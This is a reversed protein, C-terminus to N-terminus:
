NQLGDRPGVEVVKVFEGKHNQLKKAFKMTFYKCKLCTSHTKLTQCSQEYNIFLIFTYFLYIM